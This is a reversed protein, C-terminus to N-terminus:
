SAYITRGIRAKPWNEAVWAEEAANGIGVDMFYLEVEQLDKLGKLLDLGSDLFMVLCDYRRNHKAEITTDPIMHILKLDIPACIELFRCIATWEDPHIPANDADTFYDTQGITANPWNEAFWSQETDGDIYIEMDELGVVRLDKLGKLLDLGSEVTMALCDYQRWYEKNGRFYDVSKTDMRLGLRLERLKTHRALKSYIQRQLGVSEEHTGRKVRKSATKRAITRTIEPRPINGIRCHFVELDSCVWESKAIVRADLWGGIISEYNGFLYLEKLKPATCLLQDIYKEAVSNRTEMRFIELTDAHKFLAKFSKPGFEIGLKPRISERFTLRRWRASSLNIFQAIDKDLVFELSCDFEASVLQQFTPPCFPLFTSLVDYVESRFKLCHILHGNAKLARSIDRRRIENNDWYIDIHHWLRPHYLEKWAQCVRLCITLDHQSLHRAVM